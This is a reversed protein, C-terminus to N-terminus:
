WVGHNPHKHSALLSIIQRAVEEVSKGTVEIERWGHRLSLQRAYRLETRIADQSTYTERPIESEDTRAIRLEQLRDPNMTLCFVRSPRVALLEPPPPIGPVLPVNAAFWGHYALYLTTPTKMTRSAGVLIAEARDLGEVHQGDDHRFAFAVAEIERLKREAIQRFLGPKEQPTRHLRAALRDLMPGMLDMGDVGHEYCEAQMLRRLEDSVLTHIILANCAAAEHAVACLKRNTRVLPRRVIRAPADKFQVLAARLMREATRGTADSVIFVSLATPPRKTTRNTM